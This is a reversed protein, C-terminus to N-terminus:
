GGPPPPPPVNGSPPTTEPPPQSTSTADGAGADTGAGGSPSQGTWKDATRSSQKLKKLLWWVFVGALLLLAIGLLPRYFIWGIAVTVLSVISALITAVLGTGIGVLDGVFPVVDALVSLPRLVLVFGLLMVVWGVFRLIWTLAANQRQATEFMADAAVSGYQLLAIQGGNSTTHSTISQATQRGVLSVTAHPVVEFTVRVDGIQPSSPDEGLYYGGQHLALRDRWRESARALEDEGVPLDETRDLKGVFVDGLIWDGIVVPDATFDEGPFPFPPNEHGEPREFTSSDNHTSSWEKEYSYTTVRETGGGLKEREETEEDEDWQYMEVERQLEVGSATVGFVPDRLDDFSETQGTFHVLAGENKPQPTTAEVTKVTAAGEQLAKARKVARGENWFLLIVAAAIMLVGFLIGKFSEKLRSGWSQQTVQTFEDAM